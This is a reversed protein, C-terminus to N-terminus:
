YRKIKSDWKAREGLHAEKERGKLELDGQGVLKRAGLNGIEGISTSNGENHRGEEVARPPSVEKLPRSEGSVRVGTGQAEGGQQAGAVNDQRKDL